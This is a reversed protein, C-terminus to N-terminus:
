DHTGATHPLPLAYSGDANSIQLWDVAASEVHVGGTPAGTNDQAVGRLMGHPETLEVLAYTGTTRLGPWALDLPDIAKTSWGDVDPELEAVVRYRWEGDIQSVHLLLGESGAAPAPDQAFTLDAAAALDEAGLEVNVVGAVSAGRPAGLPLDAATLREVVVATPGALAGAPLEVRDGDLNTVTGGDPGLVDGRVTEDGYPRVTVVESGVDVPESRAADSATLWFESSPDGLGDRYLILDAPYPAAVRETGDILTLREEIWLTLPLGSPTDADLTYSVDARARQTPLITSPSFQITAASVEDGVPATSSGLPQGIVGPAPAWPGADREVVVWAGVDVGAPVAFSVTGSSAAPQAVVTWQLTGLDLEVVDLVAGDPSTAPASVTAPSALTEGMSLWVGGRPSWGYPLLAPLSQQDLATISVEAATALGGPPVDIRALSNATDSVVGGSTPVTSADSAPQLRPDFVQTGEGSQTTVIRFVPVFGDRAFTVDHTGAPVTLLARGDAATTSTPRPDASAAGGTATVTVVAGELPRGTSADLVLGSFFSDGAAQDFVEVYPFALANG